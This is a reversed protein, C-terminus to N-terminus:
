GRVVLVPCLMHRIAQETQTGLVRDTLGSRPCFGLVVLHAQHQRAAHAIAKGSKGQLPAFEVRVGLLQAQHRLNECYDPLTEGLPQAAPDPSFASFDVGATTTCTTQSSIAAILLGGYSRAFDLARAQVGAGGAAGALALLVREWGFRSQPPFVLVSRPTAAIVQSVVCGTLTRQVLGGQGRGVVILDCNEQEAVDVIQQHIEGVEYVTRFQIGQEQAIEAAEVFATSCPEHILSKIGTVGVLGLDGEYAPAVCVTVIQAREARGLRCGERLANLSSQSGDVAVLIRSFIGV